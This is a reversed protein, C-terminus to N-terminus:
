LSFSEGCGCSSKANPNIVAFGSGDLGDKYDLVSGVLFLLSKNDIIVEVGNEEIKNDDKEISEKHMFSLKYNLGSCGGGVVAIRLRYDAAEENGFEKELLEKIKSAAKETATIM